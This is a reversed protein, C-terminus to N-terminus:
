TKKASEDKIMKCTDQGFEAGVNASPVVCVAGESCNLVLVTGNGDRKASPCFSPQLRHKLDKSVNDAPQM